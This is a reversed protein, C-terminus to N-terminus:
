ENLVCQTHDLMRVFISWFGKKFFGKCVHNSVLQLRIYWINFYYRSRLLGILHCPEKFFVRGLWCVVVVFFFVVKEQM